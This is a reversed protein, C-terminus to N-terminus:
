IVDGGQREVYVSVYLPNVSAVAALEAVTEVVLTDGPGLWYGGGSNVTSKAGVYLGGTQATSTGPIQSPVKISARVRNRDYPLLDFVSLGVGITNGYGLENSKPSILQVAGLLEKHRKLGEAYVASEEFGGSNPMRERDEGSGPM